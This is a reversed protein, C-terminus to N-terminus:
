AWSAKLPAGTDTVFLARGSTMLLGFAAQARVTGRYVPDNPNDTSTDSTVRYQYGLSDLFVDGTEPLVDLATKLFRIRLDTNDLPTQDGTEKGARERSLLCDVDVGNFTM